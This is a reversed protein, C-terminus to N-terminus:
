DKFYLNYKNKAKKLNEVTGIDIFNKKFYEGEIKKKLILEELFDRELSCKKNKMLNLSEKKILYIGANMFKGKEKKLVFNNKDLILQSLQSNLKYFKNLTLAIKADCSNKIGDNIFKKLNIKFYSDGNLLLFLDELKEKINLIAGGTGLPRKEKICIIKTEDIKKNHYNKFFFHSKYGCLLFIKPLKLDVLDSIIYEIFPKKKIAVLPKPTKKTISGLRKGYGGCLILANM